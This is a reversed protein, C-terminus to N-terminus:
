VKCISEKYYNNIKIEIGNKIYNVIKMSLEPKVSAKEQSDDYLKTEKGFLNAVKEVEDNIVPSLDEDLSPSEEIIYEDGDDSINVTYSEEKYKMFILEDVISKKLTEDVIIEFKNFAHNFSLNFNIKNRECIKVLSNQLSHSLYFQMTGYIVKSMRIHPGGSLSEHKLYNGIMNLFLSYKNFSFGTKLKLDTNIAAVETAGLCFHSFGLTCSTPLHSHIYGVNNETVGVSLRTGEITSALVYSGEHEKFRLKVVIDKLTRSQKINNSIVIEPYLIYVNFSNNTEYVKIRYNDGCVEKTLAEIKNAFEYLKVFEKEKVTKLTKLPVPHDYFANQYKDAIKRYKDSIFYSEALSKILELEDQEIEISTLEDKYEEGSDIYTLGDNDINYLDDNLIICLDKNRTGIHYSGETIEPTNEEKVLEEIKM